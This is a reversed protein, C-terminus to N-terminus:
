FPAPDVVRLRGELAAFAAHLEPPTATEWGAPLISGGRAGATREPAKVDRTLVLDDTVGSAEAPRVAGGGTLEYGLGQEPAWWEGSTPPRVLYHLAAAIKVPSDYGAGLLEHNDKGCLLGRVLGTAHDHDVALRKKGPKNRCIACRGGQLELLADYQAATLNYVKEVMAAHSRASACARCTTAKRGFDEDDRFTQCGACWATGEPAHRM